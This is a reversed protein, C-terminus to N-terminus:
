GAIQYEFGFREFVNERASVFINNSPSASAALYIAASVVSRSVKSVNQLSIDRDLM